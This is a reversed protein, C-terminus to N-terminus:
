VVLNFKGQVFGEDKKPQAPPMPKKVTQKKPPEIKNDALAKAVAAKVLQEVLDKSLIPKSMKQPEEQSAAEDEAEEQTSEESDTQEESEDDEDKIDREAKSHSNIIKIIQDDSLKKTKILEKLEKNM